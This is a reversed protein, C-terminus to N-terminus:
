RSCCFQAASFERDAGVPAHLPGTAAIGGPSPFLFRFCIEGGPRHRRLSRAESADLIRPPRQHRGGLARGVRRDSATM